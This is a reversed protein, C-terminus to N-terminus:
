MPFADLRGIEFAKLYRGEGEHFKPAAAVGRRVLGENIQGFILHFIENATDLVPVQHRNATLSVVSAIQHLSGCIASETADIVLSALEHLAAQDKQWVYVPMTARNDKAYGFYTFVDIYNQSVSKGYCFRIYQEILEDKSFTSLPSDTLRGAELLRAERFFDKRDGLADGFSRFTGKANGYRNYSCLLSSSWHNLRKSNEYLIVLYDLGTPQIKGTSVLNKKELVDFYIGDFINGCLLHYLNVEPSFGNDIKKIIRIMPECLQDLADIAHKACAQSLDQLAEYDSELFIPCNMMLRGGDTKLVGIRCLSHIAECLAPMNQLGEDDAEPMHLAVYSIADDMGFQSLVARPNSDDPIMGSNSFNDYFYKSFIM